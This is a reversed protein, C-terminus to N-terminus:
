KSDDDSFQVDINESNVLEGGDRGGLSKFLNGEILFFIKLQLM